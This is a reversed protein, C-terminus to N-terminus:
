PRASWIMEASIATEIKSGIRTSGGRKLPARGFSTAAVAEPALDYFGVEAGERRLSCVGYRPCHSPFPKIISSHLRWYRENPGVYVISQIESSTKRQWSLTTALCSLNKDDFLGTRHRCCIRCALFHPLNQDKIVM